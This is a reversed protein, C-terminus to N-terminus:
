NALNTQKLLEEFTSNQYQPELYRKYNAFGASYSINSADFNIVMGGDKAEDLSFLLNKNIKNAYVWFNSDGLDVGGKGIIHGIGKDVIFKGYLMTARLAFGRVKNAGGCLKEASSQISSIKGNVHYHSTGEDHGDGIDLQNRRQPVIKMDSLVETISGVGAVGTVDVTKGIGWLGGEPKEKVTLAEQDECVIVLGTDYVPPCGWQDVLGAGIVDNGVDKAARTIFNGCRKILATYSINGSIMVDGCRYSGSSNDKFCAQKEGNLPECVSGLCTSDGGGEALLRTGCYFEPSTSSYVWDYRNDKKAPDFPSAQDSPNAYVSFKIKDKEVDPIQKCFEPMLNQPRVLWVQPLRFNVIAPNITYLIFYSMYGIFLGIIAGGIRSKASSITESNGGSTVWQIGAIIIVIVAVISAVSILYKYMTIIFDGINNFDSRGAFSIETKTKGAPLCRGWEEGKQGGVCPAATGGTIFGQELDNDSPNTEKLFQRRVGYCDQRKWCFPNLAPIQSDAGATEASAVLPVTVFFIIAAFVSIFSRKKYM